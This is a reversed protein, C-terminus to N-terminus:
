WTSQYPIYPNTRPVSEYNVAQAIIISQLREVYRPAPCLGMESFLSTIGSRILKVSKVGHSYPIKVIFVFTMKSWHLYRRQTLYGRLPYQNIIWGTFCEVGSRARARSM